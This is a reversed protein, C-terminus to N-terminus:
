FHGSINIPIHCVASVLWVAAGLVCLLNDPVDTSLELLVTGFNDTEFGHLCCANYACSPMAVYAVGVTCTITM